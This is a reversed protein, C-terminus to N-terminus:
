IYGRWLWYQGVESSAQKHIAVKAEAESLDAINKIFQQLREQEQAYATAANEGTDQTNGAM